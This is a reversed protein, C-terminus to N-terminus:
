FYFNKTSIHSNAIRLFRVARFFLCSGVSCQTQTHTHIQHSVTTISTAYQVNSSTEIVFRFNSSTFYVGLMYLHCPFLIHLQCLACRWIHMNSNQINARLYVCVCLWGLSMSVRGFILWHISGIQHTCILSAVSYMLPTIINIFTIVNLQRLGRVNRRFSFDNSKSSPGAVAINQKFCFLFFVM